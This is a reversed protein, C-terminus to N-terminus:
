KTDKEKFPNLLFVNFTTTPSKPHSRIGMNSGSDLRIWVREDVKLDVIASQSSTGANGDNQDAFISVVIEEGRMLHVSATHELEPRVAFTLMYPGAKPCIFEHQSADWTGSPHQTLIRDFPVHLPDDSGKLMGTFVTSFYVPEPQKCECLGM